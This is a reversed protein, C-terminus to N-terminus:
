GYRRQYDEGGASPDLIFDLGNTALLTLPDFGAVTQRLMLNPHGPLIM